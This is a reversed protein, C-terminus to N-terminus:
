LSGPNTIFREVTGFVGRNQRGLDAFQSFKLTVPTTINGRKEQVPAGQFYLVAGDGQANTVWYGDSKVDKAFTDKPDVMGSYAPPVTINHNGIDNLVSRTGGVVDDKDLSQPIRLGAAINYHGLVMQNAITTADTVDQGNVSSTSVYSQGAITARNRLVNATATIYGDLLDQGNATGKLTSALPAFAARATALAKADSMPSTTDMQAKPVASALLVEQALMQSDPRSILTGAVYQAPTIKHDAMLEHVAQMGYPGTMQRFQGIAVANQLAAQPTQETMRLSQGIQNEMDQPIIKPPRTPDFQTQAAVAKAAYAQFTEPTQNKQFADYAAGVATNNKITYGTPDADYARVIEAAVGKSAAVGKESASREAEPPLPAEALQRLEPLTKGVFETAKAAYAQDDEFGQERKAIEEAREKPTTGMVNTMNQKTWAIANPDGARVAARMDDWKAQVDAFQTVGVSQKAKDFENQISALKGPSMNKFLSGDPNSIMSYAADLSQPTANPDRVARNFLTEATFDAVHNTAERVARDRVNPPLGAGARQISGLVDDLNSPDLELRKAGNDAIDQFNSVAADGALQYHDAIIRRGFEQQRAIAHTQFFEKAQKSGLDAGLQDYAPQVTDQYFNSLKAMAQPDNPDTNEKLAAYQADLNLDTDSAKKALAMTENQAAAEGLQNVASGVEGAGRSIDEGAQRGYRAVSYAAGELPAASVNETNEYQALRPM